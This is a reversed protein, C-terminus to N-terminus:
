TGIYGLMEEFKKPKEEFIRTKVQLQLLPQRQNSYTVKYDNM